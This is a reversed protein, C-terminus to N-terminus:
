PAAACVPAALRDCRAFEEVREVARASGICAAFDGVWRPGNAGPHYAFFRVTPAGLPARQWVGDIAVGVFSGAQAIVCTPGPATRPRLVVVRAFAGDELRDFWLEPHVIGLRDAAAAFAAARDAPGLQPADRYLQDALRRAEAIVARRDTASWPRPAPATSSTPATRHASSEPRPPLTAIVVVIVLGGLAAAAVGLALVRPPQRGLWRWAAVLWPGGVAWAQAVAGALWAVGAGLGHLTPGLWTAAGSPRSGPRRLRRRRTAIM